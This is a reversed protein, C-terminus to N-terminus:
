ADIGIVDNPENPSNKTRLGLWDNYEKEFNVLSYYGYTLTGKKYSSVAYAVKKKTLVEDYFMQYYNHKTVSEKKSADILIKECLYALNFLINKVQVTGQKKMSSQILTVAFTYDKGTLVESLETQHGINKLRSIVIKLIKEFQTVTCIGKIKENIIKSIEQKQSQLLNYVATIPAASNVRGSYNGYSGVISEAVTKTGIERKKDVTSLNRYWDEVNKEKKDFVDKFKITNAKASKVKSKVSIKISSDVDKKESATINILYDYLSTNAKKPIFIRIKSGKLNMKPPIGLVNRMKVDNLNLCVAMKVATLIEYFEAPVLNLPSTYPISLRTDKKTELLLNIIQKEAEKELDVSKIYKIVNETIMDPTMWEDVISPIIDSPKFKSGSTPKMPQSKVSPKVQIEIPAMKVSGTKGGSTPVTYKALYPVGSFMKQIKKLETKRYERDSNDVKVTIIKKNDYSVDSYVKSLIQQVTKIQQLTLSM